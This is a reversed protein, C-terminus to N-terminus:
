CSLIFFRVEAGWNAGLGEATFCFVGSKHSGGVPIYIDSLTFASFIIAGLLRHM